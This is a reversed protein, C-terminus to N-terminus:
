QCKSKAIFGKQEEKERSSRVLVNKAIGRASFICGKKRSIMLGFIKKGSEEKNCNKSKRLLYAL